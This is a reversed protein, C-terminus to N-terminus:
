FLELVNEPPRGIVANTNNKIIIPREILIPNQSIIKLLEDQNIISKIELEKFLKEKSRLMDILDLNLLNKINSIEKESLPDELYKIIKIEANKSNLIELAERSKRCRPNHIITYTNM